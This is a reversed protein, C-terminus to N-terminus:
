IFDATDEVFEIETAKILILIAVYINERFAVFIQFKMADEICEQNHLVMVLIQQCVLFEIFLILM